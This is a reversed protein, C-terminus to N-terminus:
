KNGNIKLKEYGVKQWFFLLLEGSQTDIAFDIINKIKFNNEITEFEKTAYFYTKNDLEQFNKKYFASLIEDKILKKRNKINKKKYFKIDDLTIKLTKFLKLNLLEEIIYSKLKKSTMKQLNKPNELFKVNNFRNEYTESYFIKERKKNIFDIGSHVLRMKNKKFNKVRHKKIYFIEMNKLKIINKKGYIESYDTIENKTMQPSNLKIEWHTKSRPRVSPILRPIPIYFTKYQKFFTSYSTQEISLINFPIVILIIFVIKIM